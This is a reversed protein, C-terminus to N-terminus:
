PKEKEEESPTVLGKEVLKKHLTAYEEDSMWRKEQEQKLIERRTLKPKEAKVPRTGPKKKVPPKVPGPEPRSLPAEPAAETSQTGAERVLHRLESFIQRKISESPPQTNDYWEYVWKKAVGTHELVSAAVKEVGGAADVMSRFARQAKAAESEGSDEHSYFKRREDM